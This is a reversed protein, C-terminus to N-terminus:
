LARAQPLLRRQPAGDNDRSPLAEERAQSVADRSVRAADAASLSWLFRPRTYESFGAIRRRDIAPIGGAATM